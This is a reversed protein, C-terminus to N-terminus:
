IYMFSLFLSLFTGIIILAFFGLIYLTKNYDYIYQSIVLGLVGGIVQAREEEIFCYSEFEKNSTDLKTISSYKIGSLFGSIITFLYITYVNNCQSIVVGLLLFTILHFIHYKKYDVKIALKVIPSFGRSILKAFELVIPISVAVWPIVGKSLLYLVISRIFYHDIFSDLICSWRILNIYDKKTAM